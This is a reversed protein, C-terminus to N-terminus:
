GLLRTGHDGFIVRAIDEAPSTPLPFIKTPRATGSPFYDERYWKRLEEHASAAASEGLELENPSDGVFELLMGNPDRVYLSYCFGHDIGCNDYSLEDFRAKLRAIEDFDPVSLAIHHDIGNPPLNTAPGYADPLFQFFGLCGGDGMEFFCHLFPMEHGASNHSARMAAVMPMGVIDEYFRRTAEMDDTRVAHHHLRRMKIKRRRTARAAELRAHSEKTVRSEAPAAQQKLDMVFSRSIM